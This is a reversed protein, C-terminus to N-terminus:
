RRHGNMGGGEVVTCAIEMPTVRKNPVDAAENLGRKEM